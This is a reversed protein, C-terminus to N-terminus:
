RGDGDGASLHFSQCYHSDKHSGAPAYNPHPDLIVKGPLPLLYEVNSSETAHRAQKFPDIIQLISKSPSESDSLALM